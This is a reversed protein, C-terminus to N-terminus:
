FTYSFQLAAGRPIYGLNFNSGKTTANIFKVNNSGKALVWLIDAAWIAAGLAIIVEKDGKFFQYQLDGEVYKEYYTEEYHSGLGQDNPVRTLRVFTQYEGEAYYRQEGAWLGLTILGLSSITRMYPKFTMMRRDAVFYDGLGPLLISLLANSPGGTNSYQKSIGDIFLVPTINSGLLQVDNSIDWEIRRDPEKSINSRIDGTLLEPHVLRYDEDLFKLDVRHVSGHIRSKIDYHIIAKNQDITIDINKAVPLRQAHLNASFVFLVGALRVMHKFGKM